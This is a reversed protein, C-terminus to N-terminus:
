AGLRALELVDAEFMEGPIVQRLRGSRDVTVTLPVLRRTSLAQAMAGEDLTVQFQWGHRAMAQRVAQPDRERAVGLIALATGAARVRLQELHANHRLCYPCNVSWFVVVVAKGDVDAPGWPTGDLLRVAPWAVPTGPEPPAAAAPWPVLAAGSAWATAGVAAVAIADRRKV